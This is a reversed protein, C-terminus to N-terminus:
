TSDAKGVAERGSASSCVPRAHDRSNLRPLPIRREPFFEDPKAREVPFVSAGLTARNSAPCRGYNGRTTMRVNRPLTYANKPPPPCTAGAPVRNTSPRITTVHSGDGSAKYRPDLRAGADCYDRWAEHWCYAYFRRLEDLSRRNRTPITLRATHITTCSPGRPLFPSFFDALSSSRGSLHCNYLRPSGSNKSCAKRPVFHPFIDSANTSFDTDIRPVSVWNSSRLVPRSVSELSQIVAPIPTCNCEDDVRRQRTPIGEHLERKFRPLRKAIGARLLM